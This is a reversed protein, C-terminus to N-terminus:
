EGTLRCAIQFAVAASGASTPETGTHGNRAFKLSVDAFPSAMSLRDMFEGLAESTRAMGTLTLGAEGALNKPEDADLRTLWADAPLMESLQGLVRAYSRHRVIAEIAQHQEQLQTLSKRAQNIAEIRLGLDHDAAPISQVTHRPGLVARSTYAYGGWVLVQTAVLCLLWRRGIRHLHSRRALDPDLLNVPRLAM